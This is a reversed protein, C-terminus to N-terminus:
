HHVTNRARVLSRSSHPAPLSRQHGKCERDDNARIGDSDQARRGDSGHLDCNSSARAYKGDIWLALFEEKDFRREEFLELAKASREQFARQRVVPQARVRRSHKWGPWRLRTDVPGASDVERLQEDIAIGSKLHQYSKLPREREDEIDRVRPVRIPVRERDIRVSGPNTGWRRFRGDLPKDREHKQGTLYVLEENLLEGALLYAMQAYHQVMHLKMELGAQMLEHISKPIEPSQEGDTTDNLYKM